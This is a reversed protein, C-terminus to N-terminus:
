GFTRKAMQLGGAPFRAKESEIQMEGIAKDFASAWLMVREDNMLYPEAQVLAGYLYVDPSRDLLWNSPAEDTLAPVKAYYTIEIQNDSGPAPFLVINSGIVSYFKTPGPQSAARLREYNSPTVFQLHGRNPSTMALANHALWDPPLKIYDGSPTVTRRELMENVRLKRNIQAQALAIFTPVQPALDARNLYSAIAAQLGSYTSLDM